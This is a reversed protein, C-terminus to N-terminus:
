EVRASGGAARGQVEAALQARLRSVEAAAAQAVLEAARLRERLGEAPAATSHEAAGLAEPLEAGEAEAPALGAAFASREAGAGSGRDSLRSDHQAQVLRQLRALREPSPATFVVSSRLAAYRETADAAERHAERLQGEVETLQQELHQTRPRQSEIAREIAASCARLNDLAKCGTHPAGPGSPPSRPPAPPAASRGSGASLAVTGSM